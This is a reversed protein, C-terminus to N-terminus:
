CHDSGAQLTISAPRLSIDTAGSEAFRRILKGLDPKHVLAAAQELSLWATKREHREPWRANQRRVQLPFVQVKCTLKKKGKKRRHEFHGIPRSAITGILGAEEFAEIEATHHPRKRSMPQGKPVSWRRKRRTTILLIKLEDRVRRFPLAAFQKRAM